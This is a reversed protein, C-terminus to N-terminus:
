YSLFQEQIYGQNGDGSLSDEKIRVWGDYYREKVIVKTNNALLGVSNGNESRRNLAHKGGANNIRAYKYNDHDYIVNPKVYDVHSDQIYGHRDPLFRHRIEKWGTDTQDLIEIQTKHYLGGVNASNLNDSRRVIVPDNPASPNNVWAVQDFYWRSKYENNPRTDKLYQNGIWGEKDGELSYHRILTYSAGESLVQVKTNDYLYGRVDSVEDAQNRVVQGEGDVPDVNVWKYSLFTYGANDYINNPIKTSLDENRVWGSGDYLLSDHRILSWNGDEEVLIVQTNDHLFGVVESDNNPKRFIAKGVGNEKIWVSARVLHTFRVAVNNYYIIQRAGVIPEHFMGYYVIPNDPGVDKDIFTVLTRPNNPDYQDILRSMHEQKLFSWTFTIAPYGQRIPEGLLNYGVVPIPEEQYGDPPYLDIDNIAFLGAM